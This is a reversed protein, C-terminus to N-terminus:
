GLVLVVVAAVLVPVTLVVVGIRTNRRRRRIEEPSLGQLPGHQALSKEIFYDAAVAVALCLVVVLIVFPM